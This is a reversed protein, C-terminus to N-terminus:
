RAITALIVILVLHLLMAIILVWAIGIFPRQDRIHTSVHHAKPSRESAVLGLAIRLRLPSRVPSRHMEKLLAGHCSKCLSWMRRPEPVGVPEKLAIPRFWIATTCVSCRVPKFWRTKRTIERGDAVAVDNEPVIDKLKESDEERALRHDFVNVPQSICRLERYNNYWIWLSIETLGPFLLATRPLAAARGRVARRESDQRKGNRRKYLFHRGVGFLFSFHASPGRSKRVSRKEKEHAAPPVGSFYTFAPSLVLSRASAGAYSQVM